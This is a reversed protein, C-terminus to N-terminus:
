RSAGSLLYHLAIVGDLDESGVLTMPTIATHPFFGPHVFRPADADGVFFPAVALRLEDVLGATLFGTHVKGGGEVILRYLGRRALDAVVFGLDLPDGADIVTVDDNGALRAGTDFFAPSAAYVLKPSDGTTFFEANPDVDGSTTLTVKTLDGPKGEETRRDRRETSRLLLRPNDRRITEAGVLIADCGARIEDVRDFDADSSLRLRHDTADDIYGDVSMACSLITYPRELPASM